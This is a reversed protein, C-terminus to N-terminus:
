CSAALRDRLAPRIVSNFLISGLAALLSLHHIKERCHTAILASPNKRNKKIKYGRRHFLVQTVAVGFALGKQM